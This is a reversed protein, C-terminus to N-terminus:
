QGKIKISNFFDTGNKPISGEKKVPYGYGLLYLEQKDTYFLYYLLYMNQGHITVELAAKKAEYGHFLEDENKIIKGNLQPGYVNGIIQDYILEKDYDALEQNVLSNSYAILRVEGQITESAKSIMVMNGFTNEFIEVKTTINGNFDATYPLSAIEEDSPFDIFPPIQDPIGILRFSEFFENIQLNFNKENQTEVQLQYVRNKVIVVLNRIINGNVKAYRFEKAPYGQICKLRAQLLRISGSRILERQTYDLEFSSASDSHYFNNPYDIYSLQYSENENKENKCIWTHNERGDTKTVSKEPSFPFKIQFDKESHYKLTETCSLLSMSGLLIAWIALNIRRIQETM